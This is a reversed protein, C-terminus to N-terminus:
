SPELIFYFIKKFIKFLPYWSTPHCHRLIPLTAPSVKSIEPEVFCFTSFLGIEELCIERRGENRHLDGHIM